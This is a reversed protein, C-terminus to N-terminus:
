RAAGRCRRFDLAVDVSGARAHVLRDIRQRSESAVSQLERRLWRATREAERLWRDAGPPIALSDTLVQDVLPTPEAIM